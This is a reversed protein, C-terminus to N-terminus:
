LLMLILGLLYLTCRILSPRRTSTYQLSQRHVGSQISIPNTKRRHLASNQWRRTKWRRLWGSLQTPVRTTNGDVEIELFPSKEESSYEETHPYKVAFKLDGSQPPGDELLGSTRYTDHYEPLLPSPIINPSEPPQTTSSVEFHVNRNPMPMSFILLRLLACPRPGSHAQIAEFSHNCAGQSQRLPPPIAAPQM